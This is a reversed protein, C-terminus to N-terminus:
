NKKYRLASKIMDDFEKDSWNMQPVNARLDYEDWGTGLIYLMGSMAEPGHCCNGELLNIADDRGPSQRRNRLTEVSLEKKSFERDKYAEAQQERRKKDEELDRLVQNEIFKVDLPKPNRNFYWCTQRCEIFEPKEDKKRNRIANPNPTLRSTNKCQPDGKGDLLKDNYYEWIAKRSEEHENNTHMWVHLSDAGSETVAIISDKVDQPWSEIRRKQEETFEKAKAVREEKPLTALFAKQEDTPDIEFVFNCKQLHKGQAFEKAFEPDKFAKEIAERTPPNSIVFQITEDHKPTPYKDLVDVWKGTKKDLAPTSNKYLFNKPINAEVPTDSLFKKPPNDDEPTLFNSFSKYTAVWQNEENSFDVSVEDENTTMNKIEEFNFKSYDTDGNILKVPKITGESVAKRLVDRLSFLKSKMETKDTRGFDNTIKMYLEVFERPTLSTWDISSGEKIVERCDFIVSSLDRGVPKVKDKFIEGFPCSEFAQEFLNNWEEDSLSFWKEQVDKPLFEVQVPYYNVIGYRRDNRDYPMYNSNLIMTIKSKSYLEDGYKYEVVYEVNDIIKNLKEITEDRGYRDSPPMWEEDYGYLNSSFESGTWRGKPRVPTSPIKKSKLFSELKHVFLTKGCGGKVSYQYLCINQLKAGPENLNAYINEIFRRFNTLTAGTSYADTNRFLERTAKIFKNRDSRHNFPNKVPLSGFDLVRELFPVINTRYNVPCVFAFNVDEYEICKCLKEKVDDPFYKIDNYNEIAALFETYKRFGEPDKDKNELSIKDPEVWIAKRTSIRFKSNLVEKAVKGTLEEPSDDPNEKATKRLISNCVESLKETRLDYINM